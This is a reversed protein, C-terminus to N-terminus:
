GGEIDAGDIDLHRDLLDHIQSMLSDHAAKDYGGAGPDLVISTYVHLHKCVTGDLKETEVIESHSVGPHDILKQMSVDRKRPGLMVGGAVVHSGHDALSQRLQETPPM